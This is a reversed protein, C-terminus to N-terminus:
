AEKKSSPEVKKTKDSKRKNIAYVPMAAFLFLTSIINLLDNSPLGFAQGIQNIVISAFWAFVFYKAQLKITGGTYDKTTFLRYALVITFVVYSWAVNFSLGLVRLVYLGTVTGLLISFYKAFDNEKDKKYLTYAYVSGAVYALLTIWFLSDLLILTFLLLTAYGVTFLLLLAKALAKTEGKSKFYVFVAFALSLLSLWGM